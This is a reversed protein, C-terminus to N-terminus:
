KQGFGVDPVGIAALNGTVAGEHRGGESPGWPLQGGWLYGVRIWWVKRGGVSRAMEMGGRMHTNSGEIASIGPPRSTRELTTSAADMSLGIIVSLM